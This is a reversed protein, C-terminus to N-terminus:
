GILFSSISAALLLATTRKIQRSPPYSLNHVYRSLWPLVLSIGAASSALMLRHGITTQLRQGMECPAKEFGSGRIVTSQPVLSCETM